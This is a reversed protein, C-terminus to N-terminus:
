SNVGRRKNGPKIIITSLYGSATDPLAELNDSLLEEPLGARETYWSSSALGEAILYAKLAPFRRGTKYLVLTDFLKLLPKLEEPNDPAPLLALKEKGELLSINHAAAAANATQIGPVTVCRMEPYAAHIERRLYIWTSYVSPDGLTLFVADKGSLIFPSIREAAERWKNKLETKDTTMPFELEVWAGADTGSRELISKALSGNQFKGEPVYIRGGGAATRSILEMGKVTILGPDGPGIGIGYLTGLKKQSDNRM